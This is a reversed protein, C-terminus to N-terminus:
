SPEHDPRTNVWLRRISILHAFLVVPVVFGPLWIFSPKLVAVNPQEFSLQQFPFPAALVATTVINILLGLAGINWWGLVKASWKKQYFVMFIMLPATLGAWIDWNRGEFTMVQPIQGAVFLKFLLLEVGIRLIHVWTLSRLSLRDMWQRGKAQGFVMVIFLLPPIVAILFRPPTAAIDLFFTKQAAFYLLGLWLICGILTFAAQKPAVRRITFYIGAVLLIVLLAFCVSLLAPIQVHLYDLKPSM